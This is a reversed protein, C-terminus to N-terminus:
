GAVALGLDIRNAPSVRLYDGSAITATEEHNGIAFTITPGQLLAGDVFTPLDYLAGFPPEAGTECDPFCGAFEHEDALRLPPVGLADAAAVLDVDLAAPVVLMCLQGGAWVFVPKAVEWGSRGETRAVELATEARLHADVRYRIHREDLTARVRQANM